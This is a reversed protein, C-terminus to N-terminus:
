TLSRGGDLRLIQGTVYGASTCFFRVASAVDKPTGARGLPVRTLYKEKEADPYDAPWEVVGPAIGNVTVEPALERALSLTLNWLAAKSACYVDFKPWPKEALLDLMNVIHGRATRLEKEFARCLALPQQFHMAWMRRSLDPDDGQEYISANNVLVDLRGFAGIVTKHIEDAVPHTLDARIAAAKRDRSQISEIVQRAETDSRNFTIAVDYGADALDLAIQRGVRRAGGTILAVPADNM